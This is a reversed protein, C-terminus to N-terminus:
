SGALIVQLIANDAATTLSSAHRAVVVTQALPVCSNRHVLRGALASANNTDVGLLLVDSPKFLM